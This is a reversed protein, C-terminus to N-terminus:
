VTLHHYSILFWHCPSRCVNRYANKENGSAAAVTMMIDDTQKPLMKLFHPHHSADVVTQVCDLAVNCSLRRADKESSNDGIDRTWKSDYHVLLPQIWPKMKGYRGWCAIIYKLCFFNLILYENVGSIRLYCVIYYYVIRSIFSTTIEYICIGKFSIILLTVSYIIRNRKLATIRWISEFYRGPPYKQSSGEFIRVNEIRYVWTATLKPGGVRGNWLFGLYLLIIELQPTKSNCLNNM